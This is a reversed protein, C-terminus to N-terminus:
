DVGAVAQVVADRDEGHARVAGQREDAVLRRPPVVGAAEAEVGRTPEEVAAVLAAVVDGYEPHVGLRAVEFERAVVARDPVRRANNQEVERLLPSVAPM